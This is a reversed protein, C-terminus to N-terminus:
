KARSAREAARGRYFASLFNRKHPDRSDHRQRLKDAVSKEAEVAEDAKCEADEEPEESSAMMQKTTYAPQAGVPTMINQSSKAPRATNIARTEEAVGSM